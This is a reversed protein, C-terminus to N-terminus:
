PRSILRSRREILERDSLRGTPPRVPPRLDAIPSQRLRQRAPDIVNSFVWLHDSRLRRVEHWKLLRPRNM